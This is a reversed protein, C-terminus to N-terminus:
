IDSRVVMRLRDRGFRQRYTGPPPVVASGIGRLSDPEDRQVKEFTALAMVAVM